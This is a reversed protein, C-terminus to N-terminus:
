SPTASNLLAPETATNRPPSAPPTPPPAATPVPRPAAPPASSPAAATAPQSAAPPAPQPAATPAPLPAAAPASPPATAPAPRPAAAPPSAAAPPAVKEPQSSVALHGRIGDIQLMLPGMLQRFEERADHAEAVSHLDRAAMVALLGVVPSFLFAIAFFAIRNQGKAHALWAVVGCLALWWIATWFIDSSSSHLLFSELHTM